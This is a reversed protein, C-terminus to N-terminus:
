HINSDKACEMRKKKRNKDNKSNSKSIIIKSENDKEKESLKKFVLRPIESSLKSIVDHGNKPDSMVLKRLEDKDIDVNYANLYSDLNLQYIKELNESGLENFILIDDCISIIDKGIINDLEKISIKEEKTKDKEKNFGMTKESTNTVKKFEETSLTVSFIIIANNLRAEREASDIMKGSRCCDVLYQQITEHANNIGRFFIVSLPKNRVSKVLGGSKAYGVYGPPAGKLETITFSDKFASMDYDIFYNKNGFLKEALLRSSTKKGSGPPGVMLLVSIPRERDNRITKFINVVNALKDLPEDQGFINAKLSSLVGAYSTSSTIEEYGVGTLSSIAMNIYKSSLIRNGAKQELSFIEKRNIELDEIYEGTSKEKKYIDKIENEYMISCAIDLIDLSKDPNRRHGLFRSGIEVLQKCIEDPIHCKHHDEFVSKTGKIMNITQEISPEKVDVITFRRELATDETIISHYENITTSGIFRIKETLYPKLIDNMRHGLLQHVEDIFLIAKDYESAKELIGIIVGVPDDKYKSFIYPIDMNLIYCGNLQKPVTRQILRANIAQVIATKGVGPDGILISGRKGKKSLTLLITEIEKDRGTIINGQLFKMIKCSSFEKFNLAMPSYILSDTLMTKVSSNIVDITEEVNVYIGNPLQSFLRDARIQEDKTLDRDITDTKKHTKILVITEEAFLNEIKNISLYELFAKVSPSVKKVEGM